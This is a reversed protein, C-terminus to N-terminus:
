HVDRNLFVIGLELIFIAMAMSLFTENQLM